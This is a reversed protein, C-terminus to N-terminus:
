RGTIVEGNAADVTVRSVKGSRSLLTLVYDLRDGHHCLRARVLEARRGHAHLARVALALPVARREAVAARQEAKSLCVRHPRDAAYAPAALLGSLLLISLPQSVPM